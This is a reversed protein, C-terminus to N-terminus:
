QETTIFCYAASVEATSPNTPLIRRLADIYPRAQEDGTHPTPFLPTPSSVVTILEMGFPPKIELPLPSQEDGITLVQTEQFPDESQKTNPLLHAVLKRDAVYYDVYVHRLPKTAAVNVVLPEKNHYIEGCGNQPRVALSYDLAAARQEFPTLLAIVDCFPRPMFTFTDEVATVGAVRLVAQHVQQRQDQDQVRGTLRVIGEKIPSVVKMDHCEFRKLVDEVAQLSPGPAPVWLLYVLLAIAGLLPVGLWNLSVPRPRPKDPPPQVEYPQPTVRERTKELDLFDPFPVPLYQASSKRLQHLKYDDQEEDYYQGRFGLCLCLYYIEHLEKQNPQLQRMRKFFDEGAKTTHYMEAQLPARRWQSCVEPKIGPKPDSLMEDLWAIVAFRADDFDQASIEYRRQLTRADELLATIERRIDGFAQSASPGSRTFFLVRAVLPTFVERLSLKTTDSNAM